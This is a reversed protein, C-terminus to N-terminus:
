DNMLIRLGGDDVADRGETANQLGSGGPYSM